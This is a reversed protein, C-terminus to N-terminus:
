RSRDSSQLSKSLVYIRDRQIMMVGHAKDLKAPFGNLTKTFFEKAAPSKKLYRHLYYVHRLPSMTLDIYKANEALAYEEGNKGTLAKGLMRLSGDELRWEEHIEAKGLTPDHRNVTIYIHESLNTKDVWAAHTKGSSASGNVVLTEFVDTLADGGENLIFEELVISGMSHTLLTFNIDKIFRKHKKRYESIARIVRGFDNAANRANEQPFKLIGEWSPWHFMIIRASYDSELDSLLRKEFAHCPHKGRGHVFLILNDYDDESTIQQIVDDLVQVISDVSEIGSDTTVVATSGAGRMECGSPKSVFAYSVGVLLCVVAILMFIKMRQGDTCTRRLNMKLRNRTKKDM